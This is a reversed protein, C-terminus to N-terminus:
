TPSPPNKINESTSLNASMAPWCPRAVSKDTAGAPAVQVQLCLIAHGCAVLRQHVGSLQQLVANLQPGAAQLSATGQMLAASQKAALGHLHATISDACALQIEM